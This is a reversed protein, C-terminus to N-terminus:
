EVMPLLSRLSRCERTRPVGLSSPTRLSPGLTLALAVLCGYHLLSRDPRAVEMDLSLAAFM